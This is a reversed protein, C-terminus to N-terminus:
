SSRFKPGNNPECPPMKVLWGGNFPGLKELKIDGEAHLAAQGDAGAIEFVFKYGKVEVTQTFSQGQDNTKQVSWKGALRQADQAFVTAVTLWAAAIIVKLFLRKM